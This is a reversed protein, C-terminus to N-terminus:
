SFYTNLYGKLILQAYIKQHEQSRRLELSTMCSGLNYGKTSRIAAVSSSCLRSVAAVSGCCRGSMFSFAISM